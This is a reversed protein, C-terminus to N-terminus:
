ELDKCQSLFLSLAKDEKEIHHKEWEIIFDVLEKYTDINEDSLQSCMQTTKDIFRTHAAWHSKLNPYGFKKMLKEEYSFHEAAYELLTTLADIIEDSDNNLDCLQQLSELLENIKDHQEHAEQIFGDITSQYM